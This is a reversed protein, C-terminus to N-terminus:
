LVGPRVGNQFLKLIFHIKFPWITIFLSIMVFFRHNVFRKFYLILLINAVRQVAGARHWLEAAGAGYCQKSCYV